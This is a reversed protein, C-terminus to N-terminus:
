LASTTAPRSRSSSTARAREYAEGLAAVHREPSFREAVLRRGAAGMARRRGPDDLLTRLARALAGADGAPVSLGTVGDHLWEGMGGTASAVVPVGAALAEIGVLGFPEPWLSPVAVASAAALERALAAADLWGKFCFRQEVGLRRALRRMAAADPGDGCVVFEADLERAARILVALGKPKVIRGAFLVRRAAQEAPRGREGTAPTTAFLPVIARRMVGNTALHRDVAHSYSIALDASRLAQLWRGARRYAGPLPRPNHVHACGRLALNVACGPGHARTCERGPRFHHVGSACATYGHASVLVPAHRQLAAVLDPDDLQHLHVADPECALADGLREGSSATRDFLRPSLHVTAGPVDAGPDARAALVAVRVGREVLLRAGAQVHAAVGGDRGWLPTGLLVTTM